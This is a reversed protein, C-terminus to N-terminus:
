TRSSRPWRRRTRRAFRVDFHLSQLTDDGADAVLEVSSARVLRRLRDADAGDLPAASTGAGLSGALGFVDNIAAPADLTGRITRTGDAVTVTRTAFWSRLHLAELDSAATTGRLGALTAGTLETTAGDTTRVWARRGDSLFTAETTTDGLLRTSTLDAKPLDGDHAPSAFEGRVQFGVENGSAGARAALRLDLTASRVEGLRQQIAVVPDSPRTGGTGGSSGGCAGGLALAVLLAGVVTPRLRTM